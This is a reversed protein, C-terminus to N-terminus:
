ALSVPEGPAEPLDAFSTKRRTTKCVWRHTQEWNEDKTQGESPYDENEDYDIDYDLDPDYGEAM